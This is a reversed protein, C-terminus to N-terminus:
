YGRQEITFRYLVLGIVTKETLLPRRGLRFTLIDAIGHELASL